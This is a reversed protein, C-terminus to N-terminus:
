VGINDYEEETVMGVILNNILAAIDGTEIMNRFLNNM